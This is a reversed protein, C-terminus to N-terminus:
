TLRVWTSYKKPHGTRLCIGIAQLRLSVKPLLGSLGVLGHLLGKSDSSRQRNDGAGECESGRSLRGDAAGDSFGTGLEHTEARAEAAAMMVVVAMDPATTMLVEPAWPM